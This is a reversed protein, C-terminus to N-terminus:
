LPRAAPILAAAGFAAVVPAAVASALRLGGGLRARGLGLDDATLGGAAAVGLAAAAACGNVVPYWRRHWPRLGVLNNYGALVVCAAAAFAVDAPRARCRARGPVRSNVPTCSATRM